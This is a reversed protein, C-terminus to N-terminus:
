NIEVFRSELLWAFGQMQKFIKMWFCLKKEWFFVLFFNYEIELELLIIDDKRAGEVRKQQM